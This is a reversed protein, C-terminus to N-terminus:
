VNTLADSREKEIVHLTVGRLDTARRKLWSVATKYGTATINLHGYGGEVNYNEVGYSTLATLFARYLNKSPSRVRIILPKFEALVADQISTDGDFQFLLSNYSGPQM